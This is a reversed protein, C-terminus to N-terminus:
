YDVLGIANRAIVLTDAATFQGLPPAVDAYDYTPPIIQLRLATRTAILADGATVSGDGTADGKVTGDFEIHLVNGNSGAPAVVEVTANTQAINGSDDIAFTGNGFQYPIPTGDLTVTIPQHSNAPMSATLRMPIEVAVGVSDNGNIMMDYMLQEKHKNAPTNVWEGTPAQYTRTMGSVATGNESVVTVPTYLQGLKALTVNVMRPNQGTVTVTDTVNLYGPDSLNVMVTYQTGSPLGSFSAYDMGRWTTSDIWTNNFLTITDASLYGGSANKVTVFIGPVGAPPLPPTSPPARVRLITSQASINSGGANTANM